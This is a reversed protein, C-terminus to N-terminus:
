LHRANRKLGDLKARKIASHRFITSFDEQNMTLVTEATLTKYAPRLLFRKERTLAAYENHPCVRQCEDCGYLRNGTSFGEPLEGRHEITLYSLCKRADITGDNNIACGPCSVVCKGCDNCRTEATHRMPPLGATTIIEGLFFFTGLEPVIMLGSRGQFALGSHQAWYREMLPATDVCVRTEGGYTERIHTTFKELIGRVVDHYDDGHAYSAIRPNGAPQSDLHNYSVACCIISRAGPLLGAPDFRIDPYRNLYDMGANYGKEIWLRYRGVTEKDVPAVPAIALADIGCDIAKAVLDSCPSQELSM